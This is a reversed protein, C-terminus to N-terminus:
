NKNDFVVLIKGLLYGITLCAAVFIAAQILPHLQHIMGM